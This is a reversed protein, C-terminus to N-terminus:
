WVGIDGKMVNEVDYPSFFNCADGVRLFKMIITYLLLIKGGVTLSKTTM